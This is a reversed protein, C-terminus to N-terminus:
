RWPIMTHTSSISCFVADVGTESHVTLATLATGATLARRVLAESWTETM